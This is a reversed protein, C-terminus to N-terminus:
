QMDFSDSLLKAKMGEDIYQSVIVDESLGKRRRTKVLLERGLHMTPSPELPYLVINRDLPDGPVASWHDMVAYVMAQGQTLTRLDTEFGFSDLVPVFAKVATFLSGAIPVDQVMHGRRRTLLPQIADVMSAPCTIELRYIPEMLRPTATLISAHVVRRTTPIVQGGGRYIAQNAVVADLLKVKLGRVPEECLPGERCAWQFGQVISSKCTSLLTPDVESPLTDDLLVNTGHTPSDGFAWISRSSLLDWQYKTQFYRGLKKKDWTQAQVQGRELTEALGDDLPEALLTFKNKRNTTEAWCKISSTEMVTERLAVMPDAVQVEVKAYVQRLDHLVCDMYLEGTGYMVHEGSEEVRTRLLPYVQSVRRLGAVMKPLDSPNVPELAVKVPSEGGVAPFTLPKFISWEYTDIEQNNSATSPKMVLTATKAITAAVGQILVWNGATAMTLPLRHGHGLPLALGQITAPAADEPDLSTYSEGLVHVTDGVRLTGSYIRGYADLSSTPDQDDGDHAMLKTVHVVCPGSPDCQLLSRTLSLTDEPTEVGDMSGTYCRALKGRAAAQPSPVQQVLLDVLGATATPLWQRLAARLLPRPSARLQEKSLYVGLSRWTAGMSKVDEGLCTAYVKYLPELVLAVFTRAVHPTRCEALTRHFGGTTPELYWDGWLRHALSNVTLNPGLHNYQEAYVQAFSACTLLWGHHASCFAVNGREPSLVPYRGQSYMRIAQNVSDITHQLKYYADRPPLKLEVILRDMKSLILVIPLGEAIAQQLVLQGQLRLGEVGDVVLVAGDVLRLAAVSDDHFQVHGPCDLFTMAYSKGRTDALLLTHPTAHLTMRREQEARSGETAFSQWHNVSTHTKKSNNTSATTDDNASTSLTLDMLLNMLTTKGHQAHGVLAVGRRTHTTPQMLQAVLYDHSYWTEAPATSTTSTVKPPPPLIPESLDMRDEDLVATRVDAGYVDQASPYIQQDEHLVIAHSPDATTAPASHNSTAEVLMNDDPESGGHESLQEEEKDDDDSSSSSSDDLDPGTYNGFEDYLDDTNAEVM